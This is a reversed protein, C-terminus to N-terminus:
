SHYKLIIDCKENKDVNFKSKKIGPIWVIEEKSDVVVPWLDRDEPLIKANIFVESLKKHGMMGKVIMKDGNRRTRVHLPLTIDESNLRCINNDNITTTKIEEIYKGNPLMTYEDIEIDYNISEETDKTVKIIDYSKIIKINNPLYVYANAKDSNILKLILKVHKDTILFLDDQYINELILYIAKNQFILDLKKFEDIKLCNQNYVDNIKKMMEKDIYDNYELLTESFKMFKQHVLADEKKLFPLIYKRYRNRTYKDSTNSKDIVYPIKHSKDYKIIEDKTVFILPRLITYNTMKIIKSFGSYGKLTSGRVIRMLITEILDDGHHATLLYKANYKKIVDSFFSYRITRAENHFNDDGYNKIIMSEFTISHNLCYSELFKLEEKSEKRINHNVHACVISIDLENRLRELMHLLAMSDPGGSCGIVVTDGYKLISKKLFEYSENM